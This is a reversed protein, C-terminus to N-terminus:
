FRKMKSNKKKRKRKFFFALSYFTIGYNTVNFMAKYHTSGGGNALHDHSQVVQALNFLM